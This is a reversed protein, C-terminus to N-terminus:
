SSQGPCQGASVRRHVRLLDQLPSGSETAPYLHVVVIAGIDEPVTGVLLPKVRDRREAIRVNDCRDHILQDMSTNSERVGIALARNACWAAGAEHGAHVGTADVVRTIAIVRKGTGGGQDRPKEGVASVVAPQDALEM